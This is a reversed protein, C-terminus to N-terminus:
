PRPPSTSSRAGREAVWELEEIAQDVIALAIAPTPFVSDEYGFTWHEYMWENLAHLGVHDRTSRRAIAQEIVSALTPWMLAGNIGFEQMLKYRPEVDFFADLGSISRRHLPDDQQGGPAGGARVDPESHRPRDPGQGRAELSQRVDIYKVVGEYEPPLFKTFADTNEYMHNDADFVPYDFRRDRVFFLEDDSM